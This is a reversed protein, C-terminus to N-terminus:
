KILHDPELVPATTCNHNPACVLQLQDRTAKQSGPILPLELQTLEGVATKHPQTKRQKWPAALSPWTKNWVKPLNSWFCLFQQFTNISIFGYKLNMDEFPESIQHRLHLDHLDSSHVAMLQNCTLFTQLNASPWLGSFTRSNNSSWTSM